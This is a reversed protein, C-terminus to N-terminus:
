RSELTRGEGKRNWAGVIGNGYDDPYMTCVIEGTKNIVQIFGGKETAGLHTVTKGNSLQTTIKGDGKFDSGITVALDGKDNRVLITKAFVTDFHGNKGSGTAAMTVMACIALSMVTLATTLRKNRKELKDMREEITM